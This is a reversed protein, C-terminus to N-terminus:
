ESFRLALVSIRSLPVKIRPVKIRLREVLAAESKSRLQAILILKQITFRTVIFTYIVIRIIPSNM